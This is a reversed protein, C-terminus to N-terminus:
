AVEGAARLLMGREIQDGFVTWGKAPTRGFLELYPGPSAREIHSRVVEPKGSHAGRKCEIWSKLSKDRFHKADGRVATLLLEHSNRWYNGIGMETKAWVFSSKFTFGWAALIQPCEFLFANTTWLHLHADRAALAGVPLSCLEAVTMGSYHNGIAARTGQNDYLWPPDAYITGYRVGLDALGGLDAVTCTDDSPSVAGIARANRFRNAGARVERVTLGEREALDLIEDREDPPLAAVEAHHTFSLVERRRSTEIAAAVTGCNMCTQFSPFRRGSERLKEVLAKRDGYRHVGYAWWDGLWWGVSHEVAALTEGVAAWEDFGLGQPLTLSVSTSNGPLGLGPRAPEFVEGTEGDIAEVAGSESM